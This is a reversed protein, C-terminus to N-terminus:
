SSASLVEIAAISAFDQQAAFQLNLTGDNVQIGNIPVVVANLAGGSAAFIDFNQLVTQGEAIVDFVRKGAGGAARGPAGYYLEAFHLRVDVSQPTNIPLNLSLVRSGIPTNNDGVKGRFSQYLTDDLTNAIAPTPNFPGGNLAPAFQPNFLGTDPSWTNGLSDTYASSSGVNIRYLAKQNQQNNIVPSGQFSTASFAPHGGTFLIKNGFSAAIGALRAQPLPTLEQWTNSLPDYATVDASFKEHAFEGGAVIIKGDMVFTSSSIHSRAKPLSAVERWESPNAPDWVHVSSQTVLNEDVDHQGGIAYIKGGLVVDGMHTRPNPFPAAANWSTGGNLDLTWHNGKDQRNIDAGGFFHLKGNVVALGGSARAEPLAPMPSWSNTDINYKWVDKTAFIQGVPDKAVYGGAIYINKGDVATGIHNVPKPLDAIQSWTNTQPNYVDSRSSPRWSGSYGGFVFLKGDAIASGAETRGVPMAAGNSWNIQNFDPNASGLSNVGFYDFTVDVKKSQGTFALIGARSTTADAFLSQGANSPLQFSQLSTPLATNSNVRYAATLTKTQPNGTLYLDLTNIGAWNLNKIEGISTGIGNKENYFQLKLGKGDNVVVLKAYNDQNAGVFIGGQKYAANLNTVPGKIRTSIRFPQTITDVAVQLANKLNNAAANSGQTATLVLSSSATDLNILSLDYADGSSNAQVSTFGTGLGNKDAVSGPVATAFDLSLDAAM